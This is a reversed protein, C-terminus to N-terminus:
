ILLLMQLFLLVGLVLAAVWMIATLCMWKKVDTPLDGFVYILGTVMALLGLSAHILTAISLGSLVQLDPDIYFRFASPVMVLSVVGLTLAVAVTLLWKHQLLNTKTKSLRGYGVGISTIGLAVLMVTLAIQSVEVPTRAQLFILNTLTNHLM